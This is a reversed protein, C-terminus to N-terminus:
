EGLAIHSVFSAVFGYYHVALYIVGALVYGYFILRHIALRPRNGWLSGWSVKPKASDHSLYAPIHLSTRSARSPNSLRM